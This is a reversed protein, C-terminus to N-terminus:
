LADVLEQYYDLGLFKDFPTAPPVAPRVLLLVLLMACGAVVGTTLSARAAPRHEGRLTWFAGLAAMM